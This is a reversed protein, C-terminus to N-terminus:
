RPRTKRLLGLKQLDAGAGAPATPTLALRELPWRDEEFRNTAPHALTSRHTGAEGWLASWSAPWDGKEPIAKPLAAGFHLRRDFVDQEGQWLLLGRSLLDGECLLLGAKSGFPNAFVCSRTQVVIPEEPPGAGVTRGIRVVAGAAAITTQEVVCSLHLKSGTDASPEFDFANCGAVLVSGAIRV